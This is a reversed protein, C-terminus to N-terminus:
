LDTLNTWKVKNMPERVKVFGIWHAFKKERFKLEYTREILMEHIVYDGQNLVIHIM